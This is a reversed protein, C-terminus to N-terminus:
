IKNECVKKVNLNKFGIKMPFGSSNWRNSLFSGGFILFFAFFANVLGNSYFGDTAGSRRRPERTSRYSGLM